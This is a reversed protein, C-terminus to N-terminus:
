RNKKAIKFANMGITRPKHRVTFNTYIKIKGYVKKSKIIM